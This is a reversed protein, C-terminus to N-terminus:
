RCWHTENNPLDILNVGMAQLENRLRDSDAFTM